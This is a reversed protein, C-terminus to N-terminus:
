SIHYHPDAIMKPEFFQLYPQCSLWSINIGDIYYTKLVGEKLLDKTIKPLNGNTPRDLYRVYYKYNVEYYEKENCYVFGSFYKNFRYDVDFYYEVYHRQTAIFDDLGINLIVADHKQLYEFISGKGFAINHNVNNNQFYYNIDMFSFIPDLTRYYGLLRAEESFRGVESKSFLRHYIGSKTYSFTYCPILITKPDFIECLYNIVYKTIESYSYRSGVEISLYKIRAHIVIIRRTPLELQDLIKAIEDKLLNRSSNVEM